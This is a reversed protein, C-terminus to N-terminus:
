PAAYCCIAHCSASCTALHTFYRNFVRCQCWKSNSPQSCSTQSWTCVSAAPAAEGAGPLLDPDVSRNPETAPAAGLSHSMESPHPAPAKASDGDARVAGVLTGGLVLSILMIRTLMARKNRASM